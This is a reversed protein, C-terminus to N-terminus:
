QKTYDNWLRRLLDVSLGLAMIGITKWDFTLEQLQDFFLIVVPTYWIAMSRLIKLVDAWSLQWRTSRKM